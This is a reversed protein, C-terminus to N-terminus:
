VGPVTDNFLDLGKNLITEEVDAVVENDDNETKDENDDGSSGEVKNAEQGLSNNSKDELDKEQSNYYSSHILIPTTNYTPRRLEDKYSQSSLPRRRLMSKTAEVMAWESPHIDMQGNDGGENLEKNQVVGLIDRAELRPLHLSELLPCSMMIEQAMSSTCGPSELVTLKTLSGFRLRLWHFATPILCAQFMTFSTLSTCTDLIRVLDDGQLPLDRFIYLGLEKLQPGIKSFVKFVDPTPFDITETTLILSRLQPCRQIFELQTHSTSTSRSDIRLKRIEPFEIWKDMYDIEASEIFDLELEQLYTCTNFLLEIIKNDLDKIRFKLKRLNQCRSIAEMIKLPSGCYSLDVELRRLRPNRIILSVLKTWLLSDYSFNLKLDEIRTMADM